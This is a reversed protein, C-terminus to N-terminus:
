AVPGIRALKSLVDILGNWTEEGHRLGYGALRLIDVIGQSGLRGRSLLAPQTVNDNSLVM